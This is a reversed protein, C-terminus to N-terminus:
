QHKEKRSKFVIACAILSMLFLSLVFVQPTGTGPTKVQKGIIGYYSFHNTIFVIYDGEVTHPIITTNGDNDIYVVQLDKFNKQEPTIKIKIKVNGDPQIPENNLM